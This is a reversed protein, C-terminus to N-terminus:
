LAFIELDNTVPEKIYGGLATTMSIVCDIKRKAQSKDPKCNGNGDIRLSVNNFNFLVCRSKDIVAYKDRIIREMEKTPANYNGISQSFPVVNFGMDGLTIMEQTANWSDSYIAQIVLIESIERIKNVIYNYDTCNGPTIIMTGEQVFARYLEKDPHNNYTEEPIFAYTKFIFKDETPIMVSISTFDSVSGLDQGIVATYGRYDELDIPQMCAAVKEAEIWANESQCWIGINKIKVPVQQTTDNKAARLQDRLYEITVTQGLSPNSKIWNKEDDWADDADLTFLFPMFTPDDKVGALIEISMQYTLFAPSELSFQPTTIEILCPQSRMAMSSKMVSYLLNDRQAAFEDIVAISANLGDLKSADSSYLKLFSNTAPFKIYNRFHKLAKQDPDISKAFNQCMEFIIRAQDRSTALVDVEASAEGDAILFYLSLAAILASKGQKRAMQLYVERCVRLGTAKWKIGIISSVVWEQWPLLIFPEGACKGLYHKMCAIFDFCDKVAKEDFYMDDRQKFRELREVQQKIYRSTTIKGSRVDDIYKEYGKKM